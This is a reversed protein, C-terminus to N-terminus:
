APGCTFCTIVFTAVAFGIASFTEPGPLYVDVPVSVELYHARSIPYPVAVQCQRLLQLSSARFVPAVVHEHHPSRSVLRATRLYARGAVARRHPAPSAMSSQDVELYKELM